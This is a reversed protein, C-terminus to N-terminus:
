EHWGMMFRAARDAGEGDVVLAAARSLQERRQTDLLLRNLREAFEPLREETFEGFVEAIDHKSFYGPMHRQNEATVVMMLPVGLCCLEWCSSGAATVTVDSWKMLAPMDPPNVLLEVDHDAALAPLFARLTSLHRNAAGVVVRVALRREPIRRLAQLARLTANTVDAGGMTVLVRRADSAIVKPERARVFERRLLTYGAGLLLRPISHFHAHMAETAYANQNLVVEVGSLNRDALDDILLLHLGGAQVDMMYDHTFHYGDLVLWRSGLRRAASLTFQLDDNLGPPAPMRILEFGEAQLREVLAPAEIASVFAVKGGRDQWAQALALCRMVHGIGIDPNADARICLCPPDAM